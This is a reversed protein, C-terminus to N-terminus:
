LKSYYIELSRTTGGFGYYDIIISSPLKWENYEIVKEVRSHVDYNPGKIKSASLINNKSIPVDIDVVNLYEYNDFNDYEFSWIEGEQNSGLEYSKETVMNGSKWSYEYKITGFLNFHEKNILQGKNDYFLTVEGNSELKNDSLRTFTLVKVLNGSNSYVFSDLQTFQKSLLSFWRRSSIIADHYYYVKNYENQYNQIEVLRNNEYLYIETYDSTDGQELSIVGIHHISDVRFLGITSNPLLDPEIDTNCNCLVVCTVVTFFVKEIIRHAM